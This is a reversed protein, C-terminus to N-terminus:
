ERRSSLLHILVRGDGGKAQNIASEELDDTISEDAQEFEARLMPDNKIWGKITRIDVKAVKAAKTLTGHKRFAHVARAAVAAKRKEDHVLECTLARTKKKPM